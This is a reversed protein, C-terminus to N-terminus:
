LKNFHPGVFLKLSNCFIAELGVQDENPPIMFSLSFILNKGRHGYLLSLTFYDLFFIFGYKSYTFYTFFYLFYLGRKTPKCFNGDLIDWLYIKFKQFWSITKLTTISELLTFYSDM